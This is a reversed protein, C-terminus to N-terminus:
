KLKENEWALTYHFNIRVEDFYMLADYDFEYIRFAQIFVM